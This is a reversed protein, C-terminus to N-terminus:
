LIQHTNSQLRGLSGNKTRVISVCTVIAFYFLVSKHLGFGVLWGFRPLGISESFAANTGSM